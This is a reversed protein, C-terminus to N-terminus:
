QDDNRRTKMEAAAEAIRDQLALHLNAIVATSSLSANLAEECRRLRYRVSNAHLFLARATRQIDLGCAFYMVVTEVLDHRDLLAGLQQETKARVATVDRGALLWTALDVDEFRMSLFGDASQPFRRRETKYTYRRHAVQVAMAADRFQAPATALDTFIESLGVLHTRALEASWADLAASEAALAVLTTKRGPSDESRLLLPLGSDHASVVLDDLLDDDVEETSDATTGPWACVARLRQHPVFRFARLREWTRTVREPALGDRLVQLLQAAEAHQQSLNLARTGRIAGLLRQATDLLPDAVDDLIDERRSAVAIWYGTGRLVIPRTAVQWRGVTFRQRGSPRSVIEDWVLRAPGAGTAAVVRGSEEYLVASGKMLHGLRAVLAAIPADESLAQLLDNQLWLQRKLLYADSSLLSQNVFDEVKFFPVEPAVTLLPLGRTEAAVVLGHPVEPFPVGLGFALGCVGADVLEDVLDRHAGSADAVGVFRLGTTLMLWGRQLWRGPHEIEIAHAGRVRTGLDGPVVVRLGLAEDDLLDRLHLQKGDPM